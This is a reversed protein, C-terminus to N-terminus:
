SAKAAWKPISETEAFFFIPIRHSCLFIFLDFLSLFCYDVMEYMMRILVLAYCFFVSVFLVALVFLERFSFNKKQLNYVKQM